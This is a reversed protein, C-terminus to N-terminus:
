KKPSSQGQRVTIDLGLDRATKATLLDILNVAANGSQTGAGNMQFEPVWKQKSFEAAVKIMVNEYTALKEKLAGDASMVLRKRESEGQGLLIEKQKTFEAADRELKAVEKKQEAETVM